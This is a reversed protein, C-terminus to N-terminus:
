ALGWIQEACSGVELQPAVASVQALSFSHASCITEKGLVYDWSGVGLAWVRRLGSNSGKAKIAHFTEVSAFHTIKLNESLSADM